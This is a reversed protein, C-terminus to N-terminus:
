KRGNEERYKDWIESLECEYLTSCRGTYLCKWYWVTCSGKFKWELEDNKHKTKFTLIQTDKDYKIDYADKAKFLLSSTMSWEMLFPAGLVLGLFAFCLLIFGLAELGNM